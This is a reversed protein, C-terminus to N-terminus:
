RCTGAKCKDCWSAFAAGFFNTLVTLYDDRQKRYQLSLSAPLWRTTGASIKSVALVIKFCAAASLPPGKSLEERRAQSGVLNWPILIFGQNFTGTYHPAVKITLGRQMGKYVHM